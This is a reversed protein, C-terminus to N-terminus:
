GGAGEDEEDLDDIAEDLAPADARLTEFAKSLNTRLQRAMAKLAVRVAHVDDLGLKVALDDAEQPLLDVIRALEDGCRGVAEGYRDARILRGRLEAVELRRKEMDLWARRRTAEDYSKNDALPPLAAPATPVDQQPAQAKSPDAYRERLADYEVVNVSSVRNRHDRTVTLNHREVLRAVHNSVTPKSVGDRDAIASISWMAEPPPSNAEM